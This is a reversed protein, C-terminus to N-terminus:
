PLVEITRGEDISAVFSDGRRRRDALEVPHMVVENIERGVQAQAAELRDTLEDRDPNGVVLLDIDSEPRMMGSVYSGFIVASKVGALGALQERLVDRVGITRRVVQSVPEYIPSDRRAQFYVQRGELTRDLLGANHLRRLERSATGASTLALRAIERLHYRSEPNFYLLGLIRRRIASRGLLVRAASNSEFM